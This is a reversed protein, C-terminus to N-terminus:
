ATILPLWTWGCCLQRKYRFLRILFVSHIDASCLCVSQPPVTPLFNPLGQTTCTSWEGCSPYETLSSYCHCMILIYAYEVGISLSSHFLWKWPHNNREAPLSSGYANSPTFLDKDWIRSEWTQVFQHSHQLKPDLKTIIRNMAKVHM